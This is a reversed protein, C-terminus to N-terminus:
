LGLGGYYGMSLRVIARQENFLQEISLRLVGQYEAQEYEKNLWINLDTNKLFRIQTELFWGNFLYGFNM